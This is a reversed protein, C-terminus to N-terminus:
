YVTGTGAAKVWDFRPSLCRPCRPRPYHRHTGCVECRQLFLEHRRCADWYPGSYKTPKPLPKKVDVM